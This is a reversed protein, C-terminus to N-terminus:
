GSICTSKKLFILNAAAGGVECSSPVEVKVIIYNMGKMKCSRHVLHAMGDYRLRVFIFLM